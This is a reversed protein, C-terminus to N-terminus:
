WVHHAEDDRAVKVSVSMIRPKIIADKNPSRFTSENRQISKMHLPDQLPIYGRFDSMDADKRYSWSHWKKCCAEILLNSTIARIVGSSGLIDIDQVEPCLSAVTILQCVFKVINSIIQIADHYQSTFEPKAHPNGDGHIFSYAEQSVSILHHTMVDLCKNKTLTVFLKKIYEPMGGHAYFDSPLLATLAAVCMTLLENSAVKNSFNCTFCVELREEERELRAHNLHNLTDCILDVLCIRTEIAKEKESWLPRDSWTKHRFQAIILVITSLRLRLKYGIQFCFHVLHLSRQAFRTVRRM